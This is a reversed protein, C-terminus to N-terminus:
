VQLQHHHGATLEVDRCHVVAVSVVGVEAYNLMEVGAEALLTKGEVERESTHGRDEARRGDGEYELWPPNSDGICVFSPYFM